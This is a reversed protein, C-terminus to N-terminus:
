NGRNLIGSYDTKRTPDQFHKQLSPKSKRHNDTKREAQAICSLASVAPCDSAAQVRDSEWFHRYNPSELALIVTAGPGGPFPSGSVKGLDVGFALGGAGSGKQELECSKLVLFEVTFSQLLLLFM